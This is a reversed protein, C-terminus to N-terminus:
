DTRVERQLSPPQIPAILSILARKIGLIDTVRPIIISQCTKCLSKFNPGMPPLNINYMPLYVIYPNICLM